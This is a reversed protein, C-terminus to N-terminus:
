DNIAKMFQSGIKKAKFNLKKNQRYIREREKVIEEISIINLFDIVNPIFNKKDFTFKSYGYVDPINGFPKTIVACLSAMAELLLMPTDITSSLKQYFQAFVDTKKLVRGVFDEVMPSYRRRDVEIYKIEEQNKLWNHIELSKKDEPIHIGYICCEFRNNNKLAKCIEIIENIGKSPDVRGLFTVNIKENNPKERPKLFYSEPIPPLIYVANKSWQIVHEYQRKSICFLKGNYPFFRAESFYLKRKISLNPWSFYIFHFTILENNKKRFLAYKLRDKPFLYITIVHDYNHSIADLAHEFSRLYNLTLGCSTTLERNEEAGYLIYDVENGKQLIYSALRRIFSETGGIQYYNFSKITGLFALKM